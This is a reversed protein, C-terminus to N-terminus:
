RPQLNIAKAMARYREIEAGYVRSLEAVNRSPLVVNGSTEFAKRNEPMEASAYFAKNLAAVIPEPTNKHVLIGSWIDFEMSELGKITAMAPYQKFLPHPTKSTVALGQIKGDALTQPISGALPLFAVDIQGGM